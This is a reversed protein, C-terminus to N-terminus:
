PLKKAQVPRIKSGEAVLSIAPLIMDGESVGEIIEAKGSSILGIKVNQHQAHDDVSKMVWPINKDIDHIDSTAIILANPKRAVEVDVSVTMDQRLYPPPNLVKLKVEVSARQVDIGPNVYAVEATFSQKAYADASAIATQGVALLGLNKEDIQVIIQADGTPSLKMLEKSPQVVNGIEVDRAILIGARSAKITCYGLRSQAGILTAQAQALQAESMVYDSGGVKNTFVQFEASRVQARAVDLSKTADDLAAKTAYGDGALKATREYTKQVNVFTAKAETLTQEASPLSLERMQRLKAQAQAVQGEAQIVNARAEADDLKILIDGVKVTDGEAVPIAAVVGTIQSSISVRFPAEVHGSAVVTQVFDARTVTNVPEVSGFLINGGFFWGLACIAVIGTLVWIWYQRFKTIVDDKLPLPTASLQNLPLSATVIIEGIAFMVHRLFKLILDVSSKRERMSGKLFTM